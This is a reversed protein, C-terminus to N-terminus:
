DHHARIQRIRRRDLHPQPAAFFDQVRQVDRARFGLRIVAPDRRHAARRRLSDRRWADPRDTRPELSTGLDLLSPPGSQGARNVVGRSAQAPLLRPVLTWLVAALPLELVLALALSAPEGPTGWSLAVDFWADSVLLTGTVAAAYPAVVKQTAITWGTAAIAALELVDFGVWVSRWQAVAQHSPLAAALHVIWLTLV